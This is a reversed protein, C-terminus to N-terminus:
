FGPFPLLSKDQLFRGSRIHQGGGDQKIIVLTKGGPTFGDPRSTEWDGKGLASTLFSYIRIEDGVIHGWPVSLYLKLENLKKIKGRSTLNVKLTSYICFSVVLFCVKGSKLGHGTIQLLTGSNSASNRFKFCHGPIQSHSPIKLLTEFLSATDQFRFCHRSIQPLTWSNSV